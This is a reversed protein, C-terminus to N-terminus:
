IYSVKYTYDVSGGTNNKVTVVGGSNFICFDGASDSTKVGGFETIISVAGASDFVFQAYYDSDGAIITGFGAVGSVPLGVSASDALTGTTAPDYLRWVGPNSEPPENLSSAATLVYIRGFRNVIDSQIYTISSDWPGLRAGGPAGGAALAGATVKKTSSGDSSDLVLLYDGSAPIATDYDQFRGM